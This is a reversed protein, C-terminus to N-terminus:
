DPNKGIVSASNAEMAAERSKESTGKSRKRGDFDWLPGGMWNEDRIKVTFRIRGMRDAAM